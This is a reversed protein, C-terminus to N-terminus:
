EGIAETPSPSAANFASWYDQVSREGYGRESRKLAKLRGRAIGAGMKASTGTAWIPKLFAARDMDLERTAIEERDLETLEKDRRGMDDAPSVIDFETKDTLENTRTVVGLNPTISLGSYNYKGTTRRTTRPLRPRKDADYGPWIHYNIGLVKIM